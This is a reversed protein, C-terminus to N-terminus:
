SEDGLFVVRFGPCLMAFDLRTDPYVALTRHVHEPDRCEPVNIGEQQVVGNVKEAYRAAMEYMVSAAIRKDHHGAMSAVAPTLSLLLGDEMLNAIVATQEEEISRMWRNFGDNTFQGITLQAVAIDPILPQIRTRCCM